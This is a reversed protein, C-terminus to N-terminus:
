MNATHPLLLQALREWDPVRRVNAPLSASQNWPYNGFLLVDIGCAGVVLAHHLHDDILLDIGLERCVEAKSRSKIGFFHTFEISQFIDPFHQALMNETAKLLFSPRGTVMHLEHYQSLARTVRVAELFPEARQYEDTAIYAEVRQIATANDPTDWVALDNSYFDKLAIKTGYTKNYHKLILPATPVIVDDCDVAIKLKKM